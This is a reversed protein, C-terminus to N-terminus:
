RGSNEIQSHIDLLLKINGDVKLLGKLFAEETSVVGSQIQSATTEELSFTIDVQDLKGENISAKGDLLSLHYLYKMGDGGMVVYQVILPDTIVGSLLSSLNANLSAVWEKQSTGMISAYM